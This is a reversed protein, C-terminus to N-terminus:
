IMVVTTKRQRQSMRKASFGHLSHDLEKVTWTASKRAHVSLFSFFIRVFVEIREGKNSQTKEKACTSRMCTALRGAPALLSVSTSNMMTPRRLAASFACTSV